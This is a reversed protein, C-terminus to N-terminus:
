PSFASVFTPYPIPFSIQCIAVPNPGIQMLHTGFQLDQTHTIWGHLFRVIILLLFRFISVVIAVISEADGATNGVDCWVWCNRPWELTTSFAIHVLGYHHFFVPFQLLSRPILHPPHPSVRSGTISQSM